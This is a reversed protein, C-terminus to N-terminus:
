FLVAIVCKIQVACLTGNATSYMLDYVKNPEIYPVLQKSIVVVLILTRREFPYQAFHHDFGHHSILPEAGDVWIKRSFVASTDIRIEEIHHYIPFRNKVCQVSHVFALINFIKHPAAVGITLLM